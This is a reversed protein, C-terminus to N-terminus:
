RLSRTSRASKSIATNRVCCEYIRAHNRANILFLLHTYVPINANRVQSAILNTGAIDRYLLREHSFGARDPM